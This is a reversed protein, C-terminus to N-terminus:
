RNLSVVNDRVEQMFSAWPFNVGPDTHTSKKFATSVNVHGTIGAWGRKVKDTSLQRVPIEPYGLCLEAVLRATLSMMNRSFSDNWQSKSQGARGTMEIHIGRTNCPPAAWATDREWVCQIVERNDVCYHASTVRPCTRFYNAVSRAVNNTENTEATHLVILTPSQPRGEAFYKAPIFPANRLIVAKSM